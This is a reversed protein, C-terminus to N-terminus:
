VSREMSFIESSQWLSMMTKYIRQQTADETGAFHTEALRSFERNLNDKERIDASKWDASTKDNCFNNIKEAIIKKGQQDISNPIICDQETSRSELTDKESWLAPIYVPIREKVEENSLLSNILDKIISEQNIYSQINRLIELTKRNSSSVFICLESSSEEDIGLLSMAATNCPTDSILGKLVKQSITFAPKDLALVRKYCEDDLNTFLKMYRSTIREYDGEMVEKKASIAKGQEQLLGFDAKIASDLAQLQQSLESKITGFFGNILANSIDDANKRIALCQAANLAAVSGGLAAVSTNFRNISNDFPNTDVHITVDIPVSGSYSVSGGSQSSPYSVSGSYSVSAHYSRSYSM